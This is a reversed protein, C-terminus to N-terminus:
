RSSLYQWGIHMDYLMCIRAAVHFRTLAIHISYLQLPVCLLWVRLRQGGTLVSTAYYRQHYISYRTRYCVCYIFVGYSLRTCFVTDSSYQRVVLDIYGFFQRHRHTMVRFMLVTRPGLCGVPVMHWTHREGNVGTRSATTASCRACQSEHRCVARCAFVQELVKRM